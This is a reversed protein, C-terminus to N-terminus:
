VTIYFTGHNVMFISRITTKDKILGYQEIFGGPGNIRKFEQWERKLPLCQRKFKPMPRPNAMHKAQNASVFETHENIIASLTEQGDTEKWHILKTNPPVFCCKNACSTYGLEWWKRTDYTHGETGDKYQSVIGERFYIYGKMNDAFDKAKLASFFDGEDWYETKFV